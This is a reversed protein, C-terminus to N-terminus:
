HWNWDGVGWIMWFHTGKMCRVNTLYILFIKFIERSGQYHMLINIQSPLRDEPAVKVSRYKGLDPAWEIQFLCFAAQVQLACCLFDRCHSVLYNITSTGQHEKITLITSQHLEVKPSGYMKSNMRHVIYFTSLNIGNKFIHYEEYAIGVHKSILSNVTQYWFQEFTSLLHTQRSNSINRMTPELHLIGWFVMESPHLM